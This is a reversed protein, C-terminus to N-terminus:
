FRSRLRNVSFSLIMQLSFILSEQGKNSIHAGTFMGLRTANKLVLSVAEAALNFLLPSLLCGQRLGRKMRFEKTPSGNVLVSLSAITVCARIWYRWLSGFGMKCLMLDLFYWSISDYAKEFDVKFLFGGEGGSKLSHIVENAIFSCDLIKKM